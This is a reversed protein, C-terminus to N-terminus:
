GSVISKLKKTNMSFNRNIYNKKNVKIGQILPNFKKAFNYPSQSPGGINIVGIFKYLKPLIKAVEEHFMFNTILDKFAKKHIFPKETMSLRFILSNKYLKVAAEGGLKSWAYNNAPLLPSNEKYNGSKGPYVYNTSFYIIKINFKNCAKVMNCTGIINLNISLNIDSDHIEMPRSLGACHIVLDPKNKKFYKTIKDFNLIDLEKSSPYFYHKNGNIKQFVKGFRGSGGLFLIRKYSLM